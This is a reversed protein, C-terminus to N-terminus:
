KKSSSYSAPYLFLWQQHVMLQYSGMPLQSIQLKQHMHCVDTSGSKPKMPSTPSGQNAEPIRRYNTGTNCHEKTKCRDCAVCIEWATAVDLHTEVKSLKQTPDTPGGTIWWLFISMNPFSMRSTPDSQKIWVYIDIYETYVVSTRDCRMAIVFFANCLFVWGCIAFVDSNFQWWLVSNDM